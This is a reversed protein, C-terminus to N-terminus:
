RVVTLPSFRSVHSERCRVDDMANNFGIAMLRQNM